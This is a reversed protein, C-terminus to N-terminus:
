GRQEGLVSRKIREVLSRRGPQINSALFGVIDPAGVIVPRRWSRLRGMTAPTEDYSEDFTTFASWTPLLGGTEAMDPIVVNGGAEKVM